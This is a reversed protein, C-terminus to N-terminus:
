RDSRGASQRAPGASGSLTTDRESSKGPRLLCATVMEALVESGRESFHIGDARFYQQISGAMEAFAAAADCVDAGTEQAAERTAAVYSAHLPVLDALTRLHRRALYEPERGPVHSSPATVFVVRIGAQHALRAMSELNGRYQARSVRSPHTDSSLTEAGLRSKVALQMLRSHQALWFSVAGAHVDADPAGFALWHDNWGFYIVLARPHLPLVDRGLQRLGQESSWGGVALELGSGLPSGRDRLRQLSREPWTGFETCSDGMFVLAPALRRAEALKARYDRTVWLLDRDPTYLDQIEAPQPWGVQVAPFTEFRFGAVRLALEGVVAALLVGFVGLLLLVGAHRLSRATHV